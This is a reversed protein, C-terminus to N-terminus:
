KATFEEQMKELNGNEKAIKLRTMIVELLSEEIIPFVHGRIGYDKIEIKSNNDISIKLNNNQANVYSVNLVILSLIFSSILVIKLYLYRTM